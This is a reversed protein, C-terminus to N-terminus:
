SVAINGLYISSRYVDRNTHQPEIRKGNPDVLGSYVAYMGPTIKPPAEITLTQILIEGPHIPKPFDLDIQFRKTKDIKRILEHTAIQLHRGHAAVPFFHFFQRPNNSLSSPYDWYLLATHKRSPSPENIGWNLLRVSNSFQVICEMTVMKAGYFMVSLSRPDLEGSVTKVPRWGDGTLRVSHLHQNNNVPIRVIRREGYHFSIHRSPEDDIRIDISQTTGIDWVTHIEIEMFGPGTGGIFFVSNERAWRYQEGKYEETEFWGTGFQRDDIGPKLESRLTTVDYWGRGPCQVCESPPTDSKLSTRLRNYNEGLWIDTFSSEMLSGMPPMACCPRVSGDTAFYPVDWPFDCDKRRISKQQKRHVSELQDPLEDFQDEPWLHLAIGKERALSGAKELCNRGYAKDHLFISEDEVKEFEGMAQVMVSEAGYRHALEVLNPLQHINRKMGVMSFQLHPVQSGHKHKLHNLTSLNELVRDLDSGRIERYMQPDAADLSVNLDHLSGSILMESIQPTLLVGNTSANVLVDHSSASALVKKVMNPVLLIEGDGVLDIRFVHPVVEDLIQRLISEPMHRDSPTRSIGSTKPCMICHLNCYTTLEINIATPFPIEGSSFHQIYKPHQELYTRNM